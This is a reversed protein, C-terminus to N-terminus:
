ALKVLLEEVHKLDDSTQRDGLLFRLILVLEKLEPKRLFFTAGLSQLEEKEAETLNQVTYMIVPIRSFRKSQRLAKLCDRGNHKPMNVDLFILDPLNGKIGELLTFADVVGSAFLCEIDKRVRKVAANFLYHEDPDDDILLIKEISDM